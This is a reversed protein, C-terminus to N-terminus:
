RLGDLLARLECDPTDGTAVAARARVFRLGREDERMTLSASSGDALALQLVREGRRYLDDRVRIGYVSLRRHLRERQALSSRLGERAIDGHAVGARLRDICRDLTELLQLRLRLESEVGQARLRIHTVGGLVATLAVLGLVLRLKSSM